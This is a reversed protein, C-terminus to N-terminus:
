SELCKGFGLFPGVGQEMRGFATMSRSSSSLEPAWRLIQVIGLPHSAFEKAGM